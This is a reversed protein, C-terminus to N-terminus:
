HQQYSVTQTRVGSQLQAAYQVKETNRMQLCVWLLMGLQEHEAKTNM